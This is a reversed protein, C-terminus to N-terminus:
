HESLGLERMRNDVTAEVDERGLGLRARVQGMRTDKRYVEGSPYVGYGPLPSTALDLVATEGSLLLSSRQVKRVVLNRLKPWTWGQKMDEFATEEFYMRYEPVKELMQFTDTTSPFVNFRVTQVLVDMLLPAVVIGCLTAWWTADWGFHKTLGESVNYIPLERDKYLGVLLLNWLFWGGVSIIFLAFALWLRSLMEIFQCKANIVTVLLTFQILGIPFVLNDLLANFGWAPYTGFGIVLLQCAALVMWRVFVRLNFVQLERGREYLEPVAIATAPSLDKDFMGVCLVCLLTFLTNFMLLLWLEYLSSGTYLTYHQYIGQTLYFLLEKYFTCLVFKATRVYNYRGHVLLLKVLFRFQAISYDSLRAAQLGEKGTIGIGIDASQIMAIDNAGDGIALTVSGKLRARVALVMEAKQLPLARCCVVLATKVCLEVFLLMLPMDATIEGLTAGDVVLVCHAVSGASIELDAGSIKQLVRDRGEHWDLVVVTSYDKILRCAYGINIATERKDGTLMWMRIGARRIKDIAECVGEQLKDEIATVGSLELDKEIEAGVQEIQLARDTLATKAAAYRLLWQEHDQRDLWRFGYLLTRLGEVLFEDIHELLKEVLYDDNILLRDKPIASTLLGDQPELQYRQQQQAHLLRRATDAVERAEVDVLNRGIAEVAMLGRLDFLGARQLVAQAEANKRAATAVSVLRQITTAAGANRLRELVINDAGKTFLCIRQDPFRVVVLMRKRASTFEITDLVEYQERRVPADMGDPYLSVTVINHVRETMMYGMERAAEVLALEDPLLAQYTIDDDGGDARRKPLCTHCLALLLLFFRVKKAFMTQPNQQAYRVMDVTLHISSPTPADPAALVLLAMTQARNIGPTEHKDLDHVWPMGCVSLKRFVMMNDTLTGTKDSFVYGVQGLEELITATKTECPTNSPAHYMDIDWAMLCMQMVKIIETTVYLLLPILTNFMIIYGMIIPPVGVDYLDLYWAKNKNSQFALREAMTFLAALAIVVCVMFLVILNIAKQLKPAKIRPNKIANMRIKSEEGTFVVLGRVSKTNRIILGRYVVNEPGLPFTEGFVTFKGEFNYLDRNPDETTVVVRAEEINECARALERHPSRPKLNTEGDLAMTEIFADPAAEEENYGEVSLVVIDAPVWEDEELVVVDGVALSHWVIEQEILVGDETRLVQCTRNNEGRDQQHRRFDDWAERAISISTFIALPIITTFQGTTLWKPIMQLIAVCLFYTNAFKSFQAYLQRPLFLWLTYRSSTISNDCFRGDTREDVLLTGLVCVPPDSAAYVSFDQDTTIPVHRGAATHREIEIGLLKNKLNVLFSPRPQQAHSHALLFLTVTAVREVDALHDTTRNAEPLQYTYTPLEILSEGLPDSLPVDLLNGLPPAPKDPTVSRLTLRLLLSRLSMGRPRNLAM